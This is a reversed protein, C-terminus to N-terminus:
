TSNFFRVEYVVSSSFTTSCDEQLTTFTFRTIISCKFVTVKCMVNGTSITTSNIPIRSRIITENIINYEKVVSSFTITTSNEPVTVITSDFVGLKIVVPSSTSSKFISPINSFIIHYNIIFRM